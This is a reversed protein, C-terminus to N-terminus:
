AEWLRAYEPAISDILYTEQAWQRTLPSILACEELLQPLLEVVEPGAIWGNIGNRIISDIGISPTTLIPVGLMMMELWTLPPSLVTNSDAIPSYFLDAARQLMTFKAHDTRLVIIYPTRSLSECMKDSCSEPKFAFVFTPPRKSQAVCMSAHKYAMKFSTYTIQQIYGSWLVMRSFPPIGFAKKIDEKERMSPPDVRPVGWPIVKNVTIGAKQLENRMPENLAIKEIQRSGYSLLIYPHYLKGRSPKYSTITISTEGLYPFVRNTVFHNDMLHLRRGRRGLGLVALGARCGSLTKEIAGAWMPFEGNKWVPLLSNDGPLRLFMTPLRRIEVETEGLFFQDREPGDGGISIIRARWGGRMHALVHRWFVKDGGGARGRYNLGVLTIERM